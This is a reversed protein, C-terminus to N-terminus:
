LSFMNGKVAVADVGKSFLAESNAARAVESMESVTYIRGGIEYSIRDLYRTRIEMLDVNFAMRCVYM